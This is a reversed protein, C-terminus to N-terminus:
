DNNAVQSKPNYPLTPRTAPRSYDISCFAGGMYREEIPDGSVANALQAPSRIPATSRHGVSHRGPM